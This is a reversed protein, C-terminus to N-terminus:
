WRVRSNQSLGYRDLSDVQRCTRESNAAYPLVACPLMRAPAHTSGRWSCGTTGRTKLRRYRPACVLRFYGCEIASSYRCRVFEPACAFAQVIIARAHVGGRHTGTVPANLTSARVTHASDRTNPNPTVVVVVVVVFETEPASFGPTSHSAMKGPTEALEIDACRRVPQTICM